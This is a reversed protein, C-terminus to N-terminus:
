LALYFTGFCRCVGINVYQVLLAKFLFIRSTSPVVEEELFTILSHHLLQSLSCKSCTFTMGQM